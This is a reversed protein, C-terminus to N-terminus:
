AFAANAANAANPQTSRRRSILTKANTFGLGKVPGQQLHIVDSSVAVCPRVTQLQRAVAAVHPGHREAGVIGEEQGGAVVGDLDAAFM